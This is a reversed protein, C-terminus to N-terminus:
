KKVAKYLVHERLWHGEELGSHPFTGVREMALRQMVKESPHNHISTFAFVEPFHWYAFGSELCARAGETAYGQGWADRALRWGIEVCPTFPAEFDAPLIGIFGIFAGTTKVEVAFRGYGLTDLRERMFGIDSLCKERPRLGPFYRRVEPDLNLLVFPEADSDEWGRLLLRETELYITKM